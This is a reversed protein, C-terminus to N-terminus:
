PTTEMFALLAVWNKRDCTQGMPFNSEVERKLDAILLSRAQPPINKWKVRILDCMESVAYTTRGVTYRMAYLFLTQIEEPSLTM